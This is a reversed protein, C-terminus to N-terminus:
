PTQIFSIYRLTIIHTYGNAAHASLHGDKINIRYISSVSPHVDAMDLILSTVDIM